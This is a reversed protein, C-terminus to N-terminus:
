VTNKNKAFASKFYERHHFPAIKERVKKSSFYVIIIIICIILALGGVSVGIYLALNVDETQESPDRSSPDTDFLLFIGKPQYDIRGKKDSPLIVKSFIGKTCGEHQILTTNEKIESVDLTVNEIEVCGKVILVVDKTLKLTSERISFNGYIFYSEKPAFDKVVTFDQFFTLQTLPPGECRDKLSGWDYTGNLYFEITNGHFSISANGYGKMHIMEGYSSIWVDVYEETWYTLFPTVEISGTTNDYFNLKDEQSSLISSFFSLRLSSALLFNELAGWNYGRYEEVYSPTRRSLTSYRLPLTQGLYPTLNGGMSTVNSNDECLEFSISQGKDCVENTAIVIDNIKHSVNFSSSYSECNTKTALPFSPHYCWMVCYDSYGRKECFNGNCSSCHSTPENCNVDKIKCQKINYSPLHVGNIHIRPCLCHDDEIMTSIFISPCTDVCGQDIKYSISREIGDSLPTILQNAYTTLNGINHYQSIKEKEEQSLSSLYCNLIISPSYHCRNTTDDCTSGPCQHDYSCRKDIMNHCSLFNKRKRPLFDALCPSGQLKSLRLKESFTGNMPISNNPYSPSDSVRPLNGYPSMAKSSNNVELEVLSSSLWRMIRGENLSSLHPLHTLSPSVRYLKYSCPLLNYIYRKDYLDYRLTMEEGQKLYLFGRMEIDGYFNRLISVDMSRSTHLYCESHIVYHGENLAKWKKTQSFEIYGDYENLPSTSSIYRWSWSAVGNIKISFTTLVSSHGYLLLRGVGFYRMGTQNNGNIQTGIILPPAITYQTEILIAYCSADPTTLNFVPNNYLKNELYSSTPLVVNECIKDSPPTPIERKLLSLTHVTRNHVKASSFINILFIM